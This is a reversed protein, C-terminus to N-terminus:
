VQSIAFLLTTSAIALYVFTIVTAPLFFGLQTFYPNGFLFYNLLVAMPLMSAVLIHFDKSTYKPIDVAPLM